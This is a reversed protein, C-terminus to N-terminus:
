APRIVPGSTRQPESRESRERRDFREREREKAAPPPPPSPEARADPETEFSFDELIPEAKRPPASSQMERALAEELRDALDGLRASSEM